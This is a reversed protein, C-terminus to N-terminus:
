TVMHCSSTGTIAMNSLLLIKLTGATLYPHHRLTHILNYKLNSIVHIVYFKLVKVLASM